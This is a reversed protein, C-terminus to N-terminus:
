HLIQNTGDLVNYITQQSEVDRSGCVVWSVLYDLEDVGVEGEFHNLRDLIMEREYADILGYQELRVMADRAETSLKFEEFSSLTRMTLPAQQNVPQLTEFRPRLLNIAAEIDRKQYGENLLWNRLGKESIPKDTDEQIKRLIVDVLKILSHKM